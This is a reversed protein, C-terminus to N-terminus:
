KESTKDVKEIEKKKRPLIKNKLSIELIKVNEKKM